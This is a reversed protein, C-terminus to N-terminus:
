AFVQNLEIIMQDFSAIQSLLGEPILICGYNRKEKAREIIVECINNVIDRLTEKRDVCEESILVVNPRTKIACELAMHSPQSGMLRIFYWYKIASASDTLMNGILQSYYKSCTDFGIATQVFKHHINGDVSAPVVIVRTDSEQKILYNALYVADTLTSTAGVLV